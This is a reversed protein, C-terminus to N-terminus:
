IHMKLFNILEMDRVDLTVRGRHLTLMYADQLRQTVYMESAAQLAELATPTIRDVQRSSDLILERILRAFPLRPILFNTRNQLKQVDRLFMLDKQIPTKQKRSKKTTPPPPPAAASPEQAVSSQPDQQTPKTAKKSKAITTAKKPASNKPAKKLTSAPEIRRNESEEHADRAETEKRSITDEQSVSETSANQVNQKEALPKGRGKSKASKQKAKSAAATTTPTTTDQESGVVSNEKDGPEVRKRTASEEQSSGTRLTSCRRPSPNQIHSTTFELGYDTANVDSDPTRFGDSPKVPLMTNRRQSRRPSATASDDTTTQNINTDDEDQSSTSSEGLSGGRRQVIVSEKVKSRPGARPM